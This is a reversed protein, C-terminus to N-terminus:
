LPFAILPWPWSDPFNDTWPPLVVFHWPWPWSTGAPFLLSPGVTFAHPVFLALPWAILSRAYDSNETDLWYAPFTSPWTPACSSNGICVAPLLFPLPAFPWSTGAPFPLLPWYDFVFFLSGATSPISAIKSLWSEPVLVLTYWSNPHVFSFPM